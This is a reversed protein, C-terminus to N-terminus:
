LMLSSSSAIRSQKRCASAPTSAPGSACAAQDPLRSGARRSRGQNVRTPAVESPSAALLLARHDHVRRQWQILIGGGSCPTLQPAPEVRRARRCAWPLTGTGPDAPLPRCWCPRNPQRYESPVAAARGGTPSWSLSRHASAGCHASWGSSTFQSATSIKRLAPSPSSGKTCITPRSPNSGEVLLNFTKQEVSQALPGHM